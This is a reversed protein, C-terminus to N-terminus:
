RRMKEVVLKGTMINMKSYDIRISQRYYKGKQQLNNGCVMHILLIVVLETRSNGLRLTRIGRACQFEKNPALPM